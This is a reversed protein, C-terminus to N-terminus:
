DRDANITLERMLVGNPAPVYGEIRYTFSVQLMDDDGYPSKKDSGFVPLTTDGIEVDISNLLIPLYARLDTMEAYASEDGRGVFYNVEITYLQHFREHQEDTHTIDSTYVFFCPRQFGEAIHERYIPILPYEAHLKKCVAKTISSGNM